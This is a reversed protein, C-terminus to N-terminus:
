ISLRDCIYSIILISQITTPVFNLGIFVISDFM